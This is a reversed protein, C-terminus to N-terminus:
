SRFRNIIIGHLYKGIGFLAAVFLLFGAIIVMKGFVDSATELLHAFFYGFSLLAATWIFQGLFNILMYQRFPIRSLGATFLTVLAFGFGMTLKSIFLISIKHKHFIDEMTQVGNETISFYKGFRRIFPRGAHYGITYWLVDGILEGLMLSFYTPILALLGLRLLFGCITMVVPGQVIATLTILPYTYLTSANLILEQM